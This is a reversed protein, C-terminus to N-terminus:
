PMPELSTEFSIYLGRFFGRLQAWAEDLRAENSGLAVVLFNAIVMHRRTPGSTPCRAVSRPTLRRGGMAAVAEWLGGAGLGLDFRGGSLLDLSAAARAM